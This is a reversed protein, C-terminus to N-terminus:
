ACGGAHASDGHREIQGGARDAVMGADDHQAAHSQEADEGGDEADGGHWPQRNRHEGQETSGVHDGDIDAFREDLQPCRVPQASADIRDVHDKNACGVLKSFKAGPGHRCEEARNCRHHCTADPGNADCGEPGDEERGHAAGAM